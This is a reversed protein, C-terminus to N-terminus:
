TNTRLYAALAARRAAAYIRGVLFAAFVIELLVSLVPLLLDAAYARDVLRLATLVGDCVVSAVIAIAAAACFPFFLRAQARRSRALVVSAAGCAIAIWFAARDISLLVQGLALLDDRVHFQASAFWAIRMKMALFLGGLVLMLLLGLSRAQRALAVAAIQTAILRPDGFREIARRQAEPSADGAAEWLHDEVEQRVSRALGPDFGLRRALSEAYESIV